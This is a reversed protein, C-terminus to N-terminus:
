PRVEPSTVRASTRLQPAAVPEFGGMRERFSSRAASQWGSWAGWALLLLLAAAPVLTPISVRLEIRRKWFPRRRAHFRALMRDNMGPSADPAVWQRILAQIESDHEM